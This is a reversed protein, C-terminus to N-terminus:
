RCRRRRADHDPRRRVARRRRDRRVGGAGPQRGRGHAARRRQRGRRGAPGPHDLRDDVLHRACAVFDTFTNQKHLLKGDDYWRRGMEGGGRVHAIAFAAGATSCRSGPSRSTRTSRRRTPATGTSCSPIPPAAATAARSGRRAVISIPVREGDDATAWRRHEEYDAPDYGGLVPTRRCCADARPHPRRLRLGVGPDGDDHLRAPGRPQDFEPNGGSGVTYIEEDFESWTTTASATTASSSSGCSPSGTAASTCSSTAPSRTSTRSGCRPTTRRDAAAVGRARHADIPRPRRARLRRRHRQAPGPLRGRRRHRRARPRVGPGRPAACFVRFGPRPGTPTSSATSTTTKSGSAIVLFRDTRSRGVGVWFRGDPEHHVLEDDAQTPASGTGGSRTPAGPRTSPRTTSTARRRPGLDRRRPRRHDRGALLEGTRLDKVRVTYREDGTTDTSYALLTGTPASRPAASRSSSTARPSSTSTSCCRRAPCRRSTPRATRPPSRPLGTPRPRAVPSAAAPATSAPGRLLPRLVLLRPQPDAGVPRDRPHPGQDRRLDGPAPRGPPRHAGPHLRERGRPLGDVEPDDKARLWEYDDVRTAATTSPRRGPAPRRRAAGHASAYGRRSVDTSTSRSWPRTVCAPGDVEVGVEALLDGVVGASSATTVLAM